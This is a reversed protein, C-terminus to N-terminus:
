YKINFTVSSCSNFIFAGPINNNTNSQINATSSLHTSVQPQDQQHPSCPVVTSEENMKPSCAALESSTPTSVVESIIKPKKNLIDSLAERQEDSTRKYSRVGELSRHGTREMVLQEDVGSQYLRTATTARLSHNTKFGTIGAASCMRSMTKTLSNHGLPKSTYWCNETPKTSPQLYFSNMETPSKPCLKTYKKFLQVFCREPNETNAHHVVVKPKVKRGKLGGPRNKSVDETYRLYSREGENEILEIQCPRLRLQRHERGSRLAFYLGNCFVMTNLLTQPDKDGLLGKQWLVEEDHQTLPEAQRKTSGLGKAQLRKMEADLLNKFDTFDKDAFFDITPHGNWRLYRM